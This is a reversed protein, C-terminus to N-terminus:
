LDLSNLVESMLKEAEEFGSAQFLYNQAVFWIERTRTSGNPSLFMLAHVSKDKAILVEQPEQIVIDPIDAKIRALTFTSIDDDYPSIYIQFEDATEVNVVNVVDSTTINKILLAEGGEGPVRTVAFGAPYHFKFPPTFNEYDGGEATKTDTGGEDTIVASEVQAKQNSGSDISKRLFFQALFISGALAIALFILKYRFPIKWTSYSM